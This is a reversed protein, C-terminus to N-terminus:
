DPALLGRPPHGGTGAPLDHDPRAPWRVGSRNRQERHRLRRHRLRVCVGPFLSGTNHRHGRPVGPVRRCWLQGARAAGIARREEGARYRAAGQPAAGPTDIHERPHLLLHSGSVWALRRLHVDSRRCRVGRDDWVSQGDRKSSVPRGPRSQGGGGTPARARVGACGGPISRSRVADSRGPLDGRPAACHPQRRAALAAVGHLGRVVVGVGVPPGGGALRPGDLCPRGLLLRLGRHRVGGIGGDDQLPELSDPAPRLAPRGVRRRQGRRGHDGVGRRRDGHSPPLPPRAPSGGGPLHRDGLALSRRDRRAQVILPRPAAPPAPQLRCRERRRLRGATADPLSARLGVRGNRLAGGQAGGGRKDAGAGGGAGARAAEQLRLAALTLRLGERLPTVRYGLERIARGSSYAWHFRFTAIAGDTFAPPRGTLRAWSRMAKGATTGPGFPVAVRPPRGGPLERLLGWLEDQSVNEGGLIYGRGAEGKDLALRHGEAVDDAWAYCIRRPASGLRVKLRGTLYDRFVRDLLNGQTMAGIGYVVGPYVTIVPLGNAVRERSM